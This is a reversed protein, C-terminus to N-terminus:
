MPIEEVNIDDELIPEVFVAEPLVKEEIYKVLFKRCKTFYIKWDDKDYKKAKEQDVVPYGNIAEKKAFDYFFNQIKKGDQVISMGKRLKDNDDTFSYPTIILEESLDIAPLKKMFDEAFPSTTNLSLVIGDISIQIQKGYDGEYFVINTIQGNLEDFVEEYKVGKQGDSTEYDRRVANPNTEDSAVRIKGDSLIYAYTAKDKKTLGM